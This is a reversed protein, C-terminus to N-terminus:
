EATVDKKVDSKKADSEKAGADPVTKDGPKTVPLKGIRINRIESACEYAAIGMPVCLFMESRIDFEHGERVQEIVKKDDLWCQIAADTVRVRVRYWKENDFSRFRTTSNESADYGDVSSLGIVGGGWGGLVLSIPSKGVPFTLACFFDYGDTRRAELSIEYNERLVPGEWRIGTLPDGSALTVSNGKLVVEGDGGFDCPVWSDQLPKMKIKNATEAPEPKKAAPKDPQTASDTATTDESVTQAVSFSPQCGFSILLSLAFASFRPRSEIMRYCFCLVARNRM